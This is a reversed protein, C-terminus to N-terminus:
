ADDAMEMLIKGAVRVRGDGPDANNILIHCWRRTEEATNLPSDLAEWAGNARRARVKPDPHWIEPALAAHAGRAHTAAYGQQVRANM